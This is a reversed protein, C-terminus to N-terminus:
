YNFFYDFVRFFWRSFSFLCLLLFFVFFFFFILPCSLCINPPYKTWESTLTKKLTWYCQTHTCIKLKGIWKMTSNIRNKYRKQPQIKKWGTRSSNTSTSEYTPIPIERFCTRFLVNLLHLQSFFVFLLYVPLDYAQVISHTTSWCTIELSNPKQEMNLRLSIHAFQVNFHSFFVLFIGFFYVVAFLFFLALLVDCLDVNLLCVWTVQVYTKM